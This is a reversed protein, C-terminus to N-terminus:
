DPKVGSEKVVKAWKSVEKQVHASFQEVTSGVPDSGEKTLVARFEPDNIIRLLTESLKAVIEPPTRAPAFVGQWSNIEYNPFGSEAITPVDPLSAIRTETTVALARLKGNKIYPLMAPVLGFHADVHGALLDNMAPANGKYPVHVMDVKAMTKFMEGALHPSTGSGSSAYNLNASRKKALAIFEQLNNAPLKPNVVLVLPLSSIQAIPQLDKITNYPLQPHLSANIALAITSLLLTHGDAPAKVMAAVGITSGGGPRNEVIVPQGLQTSLKEGIVRAITDTSGGAVFPVIITIPKSPYPTASQVPLAWAAMAVFAWLNLKGFYTKM